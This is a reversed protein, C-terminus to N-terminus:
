MALEIEGIAKMRIFLEGESPQIFQITMKNVDGTMNVGETIEGNLSATVMTRLSDLHPHLDITSYHRILKTIKKDFLWKASKLLASKTNIDFTLDPFSIVQSTSDFEPTGVLYLEGKKAGGFNVKFSIQNQASGYIAISDFVVKRKKVNTELGALSKNIVTSLSDYGAVIDMYVDFGEKEEFKSLDPIVSKITDNKRELLVTPKAKLITNFYATDGKYIIDSVAVEEPNIYFYGYGELDVYESLADWTYQMDAKLDIAGIEKDIDDEVVTLANTLEEVLMETANYEFVTIKCPSKPTIEELTTTSKLKHDNTLGIKSHYKVYIERMPENVGCDTYIRPTICIPDTTFLGTCTPCYNLSISYKGDVSFALEDGLGKFRITDRLFRYAYSVGDCFQEGDQFMRPVADDTSEFYPKLNLKVPVSITSYPQEPIERSIVMLEPAVPEITSCSVLLIGIILVSLYKM